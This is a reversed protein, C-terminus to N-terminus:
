GNVWALTAWALVQLAGIVVVGNYATRVTSVKPANARRMVDFLEALYRLVMAEGPPPVDTEIWGDILDQSSLQSQWDKVPRLAVVVCIIAVVSLLSALGAVVYFTADRHGGTLGTGALFATSAGVFAMFQAARQRVASLEDTQEDLARLGNEYAVKYLPLLQEVRADSVRPAPLDEGSWRRELESM